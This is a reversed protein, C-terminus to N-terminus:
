DLADRSRAATVPELEEETEVTEKAKTNVREGAANLAKLVAISVSDFVRLPKNENTDIWFQVTLMAGDATIHLGHADDFLGKGWADILKGSKDFVKYPQENRAYLHVNDEADVCVANVQGWSWGDPLQGWGPVLEYQREGADIKM